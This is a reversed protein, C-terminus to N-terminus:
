MNKTGHDQFNQTNIIIPGPIKNSLRPKKIWKESNFTHEKGMRKKKKYFFRNQKQVNLDDNLKWNFRHLGLLMYHSAIRSNSALTPKRVYQTTCVNRILCSQTEVFSNYPGRM